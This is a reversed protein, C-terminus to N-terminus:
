FFCFTMDDASLRDPSLGWFVLGSVIGIGKRGCGRIFSCGAGVSAFNGVEQM